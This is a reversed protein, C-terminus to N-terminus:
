RRRNQDIAELWVAIEMLLFTLCGIFTSGTGLGVAVSAVICWLLPIDVRQFLNM